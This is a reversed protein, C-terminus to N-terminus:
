HNYKSLYRSNMLRILERNRYEDLKSTNIRRIQGGFPFFPPPLMM